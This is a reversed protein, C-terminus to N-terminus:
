RKKKEDPKQATTLTHRREQILKHAGELISSTPDAKCYNDMWFFAASPTLRGSEAIGWFDLQAGLSFGDLFGQM